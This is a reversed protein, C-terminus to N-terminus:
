QSPRLSHGEITQYEGSISADFNVSQMRESVRPTIWHICYMKSINACLCQPVPSREKLKLAAAGDHLFDSWSANIIEQTDSIYGVAPMPKKPAHVVKQTMRLNPSGQCVDLVDHVKAMTHQITVEVAIWPNFYNESHTQHSALESGGVIRINSRAFRNTVVKEYCTM